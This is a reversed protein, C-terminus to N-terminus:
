AAIRATLDADGAPVWTPLCDTAGVTIAGPQPDRWGLTRQGGLTGADTVKVAWGGGDLILANLGIQWAPRPIWAGEGPPRTNVGAERGSHQMALRVDRPAQM